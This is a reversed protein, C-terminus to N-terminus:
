AARPLDMPLGVMDSLTMESKMIEIVPVGLRQAIEHISLAKAANIPANVDIVDRVRLGSAVPIEIADMVRFTPVVYETEPKDAYDIPSLGCQTHPTTAVRFSDVIADPVKISILEWAGKAFTAQGYDIADQKVSTFWRGRVRLHPENGEFVPHRRPRSSLSRARYLIM